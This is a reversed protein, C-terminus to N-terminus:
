LQLVLPGPRLSGQKLWKAEQKSWLAAQLWTSEQREAPSLRATPHTEEAPTETFHSPKALVHGSCQPLVRCATAAAFGYGQMGHCGGVQQGGGAGAGKQMRAGTIKGSRGEPAGGRSSTLGRESQLAHSEGSGQSGGRQLCVRGGGQQQRPSLAARGQPVPCSGRELTQRLHWQASVNRPGPTSNRTVSFPPGPLALPGTTLVHMPSTLFGPETGQEPASFM